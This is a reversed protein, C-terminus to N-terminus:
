PETRPPAVLVPTGWGAWDWDTTELPETLFTLTIQQGAYVGLDIRTDHWRRDEPLSKADVIQQFLTEQHRGDNVRITFRVGDGCQPYWVEPDLAPAFELAADAPVLIRYTASSPPHMWLVPRVEGELAFRRVGVYWEVVEGEPVEAVAQGSALGLLFDYAVREGDLPSPSPSIEMAQASVTNNPIDLGRVAATTVVYAVLVLFLATGREVTLMPRQPRGRLEDLQAVFFLLTGFACATILISLYPRKLWTPKYQSMRNLLADFPTWWRSLSRSIAVRGLEWARASSTPRYCLQFVLDGELSMDNLRLTGEPYVDRPIVEVSIRHRGDGPGLLGLTYEKGESGGLPEFAVLYPAPTQGTPVTAVYAEGAPGPELLVVAEDGPSQATLWLLVGALGPQPSRFTQTLRNAGFADPVPVSEWAPLEPGVPVCWLMLWIGVFLGVLYLIIAAILL